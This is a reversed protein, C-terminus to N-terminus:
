IGASLRRNCIKYTYSERCFVIQQDGDNFLKAALNYMMLKQDLLYIKIYEYIYKPTPRAGDLWVTPDM